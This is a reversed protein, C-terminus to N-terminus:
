FVLLNIPHLISIYKNLGCDCYNLTFYLDNQVLALTTAMPASFRKLSSLSQLKSQYCDRRKNSWLRLDNRVLASQACRGFDPKQPEPPNPVLTRFCEIRESSSFRSRSENKQPSPTRRKPSVLTRKLSQANQCGIDKGAAGLALEKSTDWNSEAASVEAEKWRASIQGKIISKSRVLDGTKNINEKIAHKEM